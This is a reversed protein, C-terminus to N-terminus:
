KRQEISPAVSAPVLEKDKLMAQTICVVGVIFTQQM